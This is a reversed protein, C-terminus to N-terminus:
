VIFRIVLVKFIIVSAIFVWRDDADIFRLDIIM